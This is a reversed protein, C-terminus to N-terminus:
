ENQQSYFASGGKVYILFKRYACAAFVSLMKKMMMMVTMMMVMVTANKKCALPIFSKVTRVQFYILTVRADGGPAGLAVRILDLNLCTRFVIIYIEKM